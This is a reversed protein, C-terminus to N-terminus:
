VLGLQRMMGAADYYLNCAAIKGNKVRYVECFRLEFPRGTPPVDGAPTKLPGTHTGRGIFEAVAWDDGASINTVEVKADPFAGLWIGLFDAYGAPGRFTAGAPVNTWAADATNITEAVRAIQRDNVADFHSRVLKAHDLASM